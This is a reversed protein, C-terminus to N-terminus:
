AVASGDGNGALGSSGNIGSNSGTINRYGAAKAWPLKVLAVNLSGHDDGEPFYKPLLVQAGQRKFTGFRMNNTTVPIKQLIPQCAFPEIHAAEGPPVRCEVRPQYNRVIVGLDGHIGLKGVYGGDIGGNKGLCAVSIRHAADLIQSVRAGDDTKGPAHVIDIACLGDATTGPWALDVLSIEYEWAM